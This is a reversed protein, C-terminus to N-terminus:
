LAARAEGQGSDLLAQSVLGSVLAEDVLRGLWELAAESQRPVAVAQRVQVISDDLVRYGGQQAVRELMQRVGALVTCGGERFMLLSEAPTEANVMTANKLERRLHLDYAAGRAAGITVGPADVQACTMFPSDVPVLYTTEILVYPQTFAIQAQRAPDIALFAVDWSHNAVAATAKGAAEFVVFDLEVRLRSAILRAMAVSVGSLSGDAARQAMVPNGVNIAARLRGTPALIVAAQDIATKDDLINTM